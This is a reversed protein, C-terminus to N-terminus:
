SIGMIITPCIQGQSKVFANNKHGFRSSSTRLCFDSARAEGVHPFDNGDKSIKHNKFLLSFLSKERKKIAPVVMDVCRPLGTTLSIWLFIQKLLMNNLFYRFCFYFLIFLISLYIFLGVDQGEVSILLFSKLITLSYKFIRQYKLM